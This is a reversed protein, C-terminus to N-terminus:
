THTYTLKPLLKNHLKCYDINALCKRNCHKGTITKQCCIYKYCGNGSSKKNARWAASAEDFDINVDYVNHINDPIIDMIDTRTNVNESIIIDLPLTDTKNQSRTKM